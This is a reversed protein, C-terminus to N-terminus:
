IQKVFLKLFNVQLFDGNLSSNPGFNQLLVAFKLGKVDTRYQFGLDVSATHASYEAIRENVYRISLGFSFMDSLSKAFSLGTAFSTAYFREGTGDPQFEDRKAMASPNFATASFGWASGGDTPLIASFFPQNIGQIIFLNSSTFNVGELDVMVAPNSYISYGDGEMSVHFGGMGISRPSVNNKLFTLGSIGARQGGLNPFLQAQGIFPLLILTLIILVRNM